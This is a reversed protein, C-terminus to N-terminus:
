PGTACFIIKLGTYIFILLPLYDSLAVRLQKLAHTIHKEVTKVTVGMRDAIERYRLGETRSLNFAQRCQPPLAAIGAALRQELESLEGPVGAMTHEQRLRSHVEYKRRNEKKRYQDMCENHVSRYLYATLSQGIRLEERKKWLKYFVQQVAERGEEPDAVLSCAYAHLAEFQTKFAQEFVEASLHTVAHNLYEM